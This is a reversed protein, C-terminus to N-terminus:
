PVKGRGDLKDLSETEVGVAKENPEDIVPLPVVLSTLVMRSGVKSSSESSSSATGACPPELYPEKMDETRSSVGNSIAPGGALMDFRLGLTVEPVAVTSRL